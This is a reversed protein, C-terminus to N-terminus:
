FSWPHTVSVQIRVLRILSELLVHEHKLDVTRVCVMDSVAWLCWPWKNARLLCSCSNCCPALEKAAFTEESLLGGLQKQVHLTVSFHKLSGCLAILENMRERCSTQFGYACVYILRIDINPINLFIVLLIERSPRSAQHPEIMLFRPKLRSLTRDVSSWAGPSMFNSTLFLASWLTSSALLLFCVRIRSKRGM